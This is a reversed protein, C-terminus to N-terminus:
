AKANMPPGPHEVHDDLVESVAIGNRHVAAKAVFASQHRVTEAVHRTPDRLVEAAAELDHLALVSRDQRLPGGAPVVQDLEPDDRHDRRRLRRCCERRSKSRPNSWAASAM